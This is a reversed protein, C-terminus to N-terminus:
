ELLSMCDRHGFLEATQRPTRGVGNRLEKDAGRKLLAKVVEVHGRAAAVHLPAGWDDQGAMNDHLWDNPIYNVGLGYEILLDLVDVRGNDAAAVMAATEKVEAGRQLLLRVSEVPSDNRCAIEVARGYMGGHLGANPDAGHELLWRTLPPRGTGYNLSMILADGLNDLSYSPDWGHSLLTEFSSLNFGTSATCSELATSNASCGRGLLENAAEVNSKRLAACLAPLMYDWLPPSKPAAAYMDLIRNLEAIDNDDAALIAANQLSLSPKNGEM